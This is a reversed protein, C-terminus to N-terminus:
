FSMNMMCIAFASVTATFTSESKAVVRAVLDPDAHGERAQRMIQTTGNPQKLIIELQSLQIRELEVKAKEDAKAKEDTVGDPHKHRINPIM